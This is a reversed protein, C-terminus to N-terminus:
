IVTYVELDMRVRGFVHGHCFCRDLTIGTLLYLPQFRMVVFEQIFSCALIYSALHICTLCMLKLLLIDSVASLIFLRTPLKLHSQFMVHGLHIDRM